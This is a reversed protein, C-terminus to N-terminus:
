SSSTPTSGDITYRITAGSTTSSLAVNQSSSCPGSAPSATPTAVTGTITYPSTLTGSDAWGSLYAIAKIITTTSVPIPGTYQTSSSTPTSGDITYRITAGSTTSSLAVN